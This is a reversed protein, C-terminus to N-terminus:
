FCPLLKTWNRIEGIFSFQIWIVIIIDVIVYGNRVRWLPAWGWLTPAGVRHVKPRNVWSIEKGPTKYISWWNESTVTTLQSCVHTLPHPLTLVPHDVAETSILKHCILLTASYGFLLIIGGLRGHKKWLWSSYKETTSTSTIVKM